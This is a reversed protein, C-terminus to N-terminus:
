NPRDMVHIWQLIWPYMTCDPISQPWCLAVKRGSARGVLPAAEAARLVAAVAGRGMLRTLLFIGVTAKVIARPVRPLLQPIEELFRGDSSMLNIVQGTTVAARVHTKQRLSKKQSGEQVEEERVEEYLISPIIDEM